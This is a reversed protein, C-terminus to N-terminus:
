YQQYTNNVDHQNEQSELLIMADEDWKDFYLFENNWRRCRRAINEEAIKFRIPM